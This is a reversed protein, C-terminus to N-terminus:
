GGLAQTSSTLLKLWFLIGEGFKNPHGRDVLTDVSAFEFARTGKRSCELADFFTVSM